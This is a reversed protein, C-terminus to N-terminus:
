VQIMLSMNWSIDPHDKNRVALNRSLWRVDNKRGEPVDMGDLLRKLKVEM